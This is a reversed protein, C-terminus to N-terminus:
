CCCAHTRPALAEGYVIAQAGRYYSSTLTRFREQGATDWINLRLTKGQTVLKKTQFDVGASAPSLHGSRCLSASRRAVDRVAWCLDLQAPPGLVTQLVHQLARQHLLSAPMVMLVLGQMSVSQPNIKSMFSTWLSASWCLVRASGLTGLWCFRHATETLAATHKLELNSAVGPTLCTRNPPVSSQEGLGGVLSRCVKLLHDYQGDTAM